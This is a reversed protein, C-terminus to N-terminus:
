MLGGLLRGGELGVELDCIDSFDVVISKVFVPEIHVCDRKLLDSGQFYMPVCVRMSMPVTM